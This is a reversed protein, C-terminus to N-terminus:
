STRAASVRRRLVLMLLALGVSQIFGSWHTPGPAVTCGGSSPEAESVAPIWESPDSPNSFTLPGSVAGVLKEGFQVSAGDRVIPSAHVDPLGLVWDTSGAALRLEAPARDSRNSLRLPASSRAALEFREARDADGNPSSVIVGVTGDDLGLVLQPHGADLLDFSIPPWRVPATWRALERVSRGDFGFVSGDRDGWALGPAEGGPSWAGLGSPRSGTAPQVIEPGHSFPRYRLLAGGVDLAWVESVETSAAGPAVWARSVAHRDIRLNDLALASIHSDVAAVIVGDHTATVFAGTPYERLDRPPFIFDGIRTQEELTVRLLSGDSLLVGFGCAEDIAYAAPRGAIATPLPVETAIELQDFSTQEIWLLTHSANREGAVVLASQRGRNCAAVGYDTTEFAGLALSTSLTRLTLQGGESYLEVPAGAPSLQGSWLVHADGQTVAGPSWAAALASLVVQLWQAFGM